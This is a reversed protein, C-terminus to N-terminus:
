SLPGPPQEAVLPADVTLPGLRAAGGPSGLPQDQGPLTAEFFAANDLIYGSWQAPVDDEYYIAEM